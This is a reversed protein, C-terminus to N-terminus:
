LTHKGVPQGQQLNDMHMKLAASICKGGQLVVHASVQLLAQEGGALSQMFDAVRLPFPRPNLCGGVGSDHQNPLQFVDQVSESVGGVASCM